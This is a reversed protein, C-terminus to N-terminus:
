GKSLKKLKREMFFAGFPILSAVFTQFSVKLDIEKDAWANFLAFVFVMTLIGHGMGFIKNPMPMDMKYKLPMGIFILLVFSVGEIFSVLRLRDISSKPFM